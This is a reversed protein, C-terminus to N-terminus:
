LFRDRKLKEVVEYKLNKAHAYRFHGEYSGKVQIYKQYDKYYLKQMKKKYRKKTSNRVKVILKNNKFFYRFGLFEVGENISFIKTKQNLELKYKSRLIRKIEELCKRLYHKNPHILIGDDMYRIYYKIKLVEKIYHDLDNLYFIALIQSTMNGIPLGKKNQYLPIRSLEDLVYSDNIKEQYIRVLRQISQNIYDENTSDIIDFIIKLANQDKIKKKLLTKLVDHDINYFYKSIDFKLIYFHNYKRRNELLYRKILSIGYGTGKGTRTAVNTDILSPELVPRLLYYSVLHNVLKDFINQSMIVRYKPEHILFIHYKGPVYLRQALITEIYLINGIYYQDFFLIKRKNRTNKAVIEDYIYRINEIKCISYYLNNKRKM